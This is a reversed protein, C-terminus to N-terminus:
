PWSLEMLALTLNFARRYLSEPDTELPAPTLYVPLEPQSKNSEYNVTLQNIPTGTRVDLIRWQMVCQDVRQKISFIQNSYTKVSNHYSATLNCRDWMLVYDLGLERFLDYNIQQRKEADVLRDAVKPLSNLYLADVAHLDNKMHKVLQNGARIVVARRLDEGKLGLSDNRNVYGALLIDYDSAYQFNKLSIYVGVKKGKLSHPPVQSAAHSICGLLL